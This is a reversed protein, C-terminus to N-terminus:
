KVLILKGDIINLGHQPTSLRQGKLNYIGEQVKRSKQTGQIKDIGTPTGVGGLASIQEASICDDWFCIEAVDVDKEEGDNDCFLYFLEHMVWSGNNASTAQLVKVGDIFCSLVNYEARAVVRHWQGEYLRGGYGLGNINRGIETGDAFLGADASNNMDAQFFVNYGTLINFRVDMLLTFSNLTGDEENHALQLSSGYPVTIARNDDSPGAIAVIGADAPTDVAHPVGESHVSPRMTASGTGAMLDDPNDFTWRSTVEIFPEEEWGQEIAGLERVNDDSIPVDWLRLEALEIHSEQGDNDAFLLVEPLMTWAGNPSTSEGVKRGDIYTSAYGDRVVFLIRHWKMYTMSGRYGLGSANIGVMGKNIFLGADTTNDTNKQYLASQENLSSPRIDMLLAYDKLESLGMYNTLWLYSDKPM